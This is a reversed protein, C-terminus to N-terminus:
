GADKELRKLAAVYEAWEGVTLEMIESPSLGFHYSFAPMAATM